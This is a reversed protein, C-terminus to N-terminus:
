NTSCWGLLYDPSTNLAVALAFVKDIGPVVEGREYSSLTQVNVGVRKALETQNEGIEARKGRVRAAFVSKDFVM